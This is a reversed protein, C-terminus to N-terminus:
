EYYTVGADPAPNPEGVAEPGPCGVICRTYEDTQQSRLRCIEACTQATGPESPEESRPKDSSGCAALLMLLALIRM